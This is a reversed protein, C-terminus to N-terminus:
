PGNIAEGNSIYLLNPRAFQIQEALHCIKSPWFIALLWSSNWARSFFFKVQTSVIMIFYNGYYMSM